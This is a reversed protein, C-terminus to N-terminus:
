NTELLLKIGWAVFFAGVTLFLLRGFWTPVRWESQGEAYFNKGFVGAVIGVVGAVIVFVGM